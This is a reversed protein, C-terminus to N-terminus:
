PEDGGGLRYVFLTNALVTDPQVQRFMAFQDDPLYVGQLNTASIVLWRPQELIQPGPPLAFFSLLPIYSIGYGGPSASGFYSLYISPIGRERMFDRLQLLGQGWDLSSDVLVTHNRDREPGYESIFSLFHPYYSLPFAVATIFAAAIVGRVLRTGSRWALTAGVAAIVCIWPLVPMAYRFGINLSSTLLVGGFLLIILAVVRMGSSLLRAADARLRTALAILAVALLAHLGASTKFLFAVPFFYWWGTTSREGLLFAAAGHGGTMHMYRYALGYRFQELLIDGRYILVVVAYGAFVAAAVATALRRAWLPDAAAANRRRRAFMELVVLAAAVPVLAAASIKVGLALGTLAGALLGRRWSPARVAEDIAWAAGFLALTVPLDSYAVGGHALVDPLFAVLAAAVLAPPAGWHRRTFFFTVLVLGLAMIVAPIRGLFAMREPDNGSGWFFVSAYRYRYGANQQQGATVGSEDPLNAGALAVPLGYIYQMLPPHDPALDFTGTEFGRAGAAIFVIEDFTTSTTRMAAIIAAGSIALICLLLLAHLQRPRATPAHSAVPESMTATEPPM